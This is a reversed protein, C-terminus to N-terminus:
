LWAKILDIRVLPICLNVCPSLKSRECSDSTGDELVSLRGAAWSKHVLFFTMFFPTLGLASARHDHLTSHHYSTPLASYFFALPMPALLVRGINAVSTCHSSSVILEENADHLSPVTKINSSANLCWHWVTGRFIARSLCQAIQWM